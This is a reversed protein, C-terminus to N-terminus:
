HDCARWAALSRKRACRVSCRTVSQRADPAGTKLWGKAEACTAFPEAVDFGATTLSDALDIAIIAEDEALLILLRSHSLEPTASVPVRSVRCSVSSPRKRM